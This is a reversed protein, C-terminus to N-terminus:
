VTAPCAHDTYLLITHNHCYEEHRAINDFYCQQITPLSVWSVLCAVNCVIIISASVTEGEPLELKPKRDHVSQLSKTFGYLYYIFSGTVFLTTVVSSLVDGYLLLRRLRIRFDPSRGSLSDVGLFILAVLISLCYSALAVQCVQHEKVPSSEVVIYPYVRSFFNWSHAWYYDSYPYHYDVVPYDTFHNYTESQSPYYYGVFCIDHSKGNGDQLAYYVKGLLLALSVVSCCQLLSDFTVSALIISPPSLM